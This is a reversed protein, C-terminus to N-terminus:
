RDTDINFYFYFPTGSQPSTSLPSYIIMITNTIGPLPYDNDRARPAGPYRYNIYM